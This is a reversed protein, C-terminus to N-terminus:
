GHCEHKLTLPNLVYYSRISVLDSGGPLSYPHVHLEVMGFLQVRSTEFAEFAFAEPGSSDVVDPGNILVVLPLPKSEVKM